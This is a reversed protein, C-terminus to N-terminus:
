EAAERANRRLYEAMAKKQERDSLDEFNAPLSAKEASMENSLTRPTGTTPKPQGTGSSNESAGQTPTNSKTQGTKPTSPSAYISAYTEELHALVEADSYAYGKANAERHIDLAVQILHQPRAQALRAITPYATEDVALKIFNQKASEFHARKQEEAQRAEREQERKEFQALREELAREKRAHIEEPTGNKIAREAIAEAPVGFREMTGLPDSKFEDFQRSLREREAREQALETQHRQLEAQAQRYATQSENRAARERKLREAAAKARELNSAKVPEPAKEEAAEKAENEAPTAPETAEVPAATEPTAPATAPATVTAEESV